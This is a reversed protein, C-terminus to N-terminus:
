KEFASSDLSKVGIWHHLTLGSIWMELFSGLSALVASEQVGNQTALSWVLIGDVGDWICETEPGSDQYPLDPTILGVM